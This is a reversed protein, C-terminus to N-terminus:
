RDRMMWSAVGSAAQRLTRRTLTSTLTPMCRNTWESKYAENGKLLEFRQMGQEAARAFMYSLLIRGPSAKGFELDFAPKYYYIVGGHQFGLHM